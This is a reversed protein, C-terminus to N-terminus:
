LDLGREGLLTDEPQHADDGGYEQSEGHPDDALVFEAVFAHVLDVFGYAFSMKVFLILRLESM